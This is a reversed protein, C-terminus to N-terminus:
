RTVPQGDFSPRDPTPDYCKAYHRREGHPSPLQMFDPTAHLHAVGRNASIRTGAFGGVSITAGPALIAVPRVDDRHPVALALPLLRPRQPVRQELGIVSVHGTLATHVFNQDLGLNPHRITATVKLEVLVVKVAFAEERPM